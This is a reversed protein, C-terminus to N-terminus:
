QQIPAERPKANTSNLAASSAVLHISIFCTSFLVVVFFSIREFSIRQKRLALWVGRPSEKLPCENSTVCVVDLGRFPVRNSGYSGARNEPSSNAPALIPASAATLIHEFGFQWRRTTLSPSGLTM